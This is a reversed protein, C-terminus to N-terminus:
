EKKIGSVVIARSAQRWYFYAYAQGDHSVTSVRLQMIGLRDPPMVERLRTRTGSSVDIRDLEAPISNGVQVFLTRSDQSWGVVRDQPRYGPIARPQGGLEMVQADGMTTALAM